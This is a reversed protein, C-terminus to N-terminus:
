CTECETDVTLPDLIEQVQFKNEAGFANVIKQFTGRHFEFRGHDTNFIARQDAVTLYMKEELKVSVLPYKFYTEKAELIKEVFLNNVTFFRNNNVNIQFGDQTKTIAQITEM